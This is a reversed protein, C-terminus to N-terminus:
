KFHDHEDMNQANLPFLGHNPLNQVETRMVSRLIIKKTNAPRPHQRERLAKNANTM